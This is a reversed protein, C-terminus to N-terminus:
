KIERETNPWRKGFWAASMDSYFNEGWRRNGIGLGAHLSQLGAGVVCLSVCRLAPVVSAMKEGIRAVGVDSYTELEM